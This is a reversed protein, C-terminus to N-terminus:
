LRTRPGRDPYDRHHRAHGLSMPSLDQATIRRGGRVIRAAASLLSLRLRKPEWRRPKGTVIGPWIQNQTYGLLAPQASWHGQRVPGRVQRWPSAETGPRRTARGPHKHCLV